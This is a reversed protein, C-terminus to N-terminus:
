GAQRLAGQLSSAYGDSTYTAGSVVNIEASQAQLAESRLMPAVRESIYQSLSHEYPMQLTRVDVVKGGTETVAVQVTGYPNEIAPGKYTVTKAAGTPTGSGAAGATPTSCVHPPECSGSGTGSSAGASANSSGKPESGTRSASAQPLPTLASAGKGESRLYIVVLVTAVAAIAAAAATRCIMRWTKAPIM